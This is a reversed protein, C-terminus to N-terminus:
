GDHRGREDVSGQIQYAEFEVSPLDAWAEACSIAEAIGGAYPEESVVLVRRGDPLAVDLLPLGSGTSRAGYAIGQM